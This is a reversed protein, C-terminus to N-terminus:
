IKSLLARLVGTESVGFEFGKRPPFVGPDWGGVFTDDSKLLTVWKAVRAAGSHRHCIAGGAGGEGRDQHQCKKTASM